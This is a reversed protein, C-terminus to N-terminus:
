HTSKKNKFTSLEKESYTAPNIFFSNSINDHLYDKSSNSGTDITSALNYGFNRFHDDLLLKQIIPLPKIKGNILIKDISIQNAENRKTNLIIHLKFTEM